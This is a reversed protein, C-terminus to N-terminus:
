KNNTEMLSKSLPGLEQDIMELIMLMAHQLANDSTAHKSTLLLKINYSKWAQKTSNSNSTQVTVDDYDEATDSFTSENNDQLTSPLNAIPDQNGNITNMM